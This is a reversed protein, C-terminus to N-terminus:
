KNIVMHTIKASGGHQCEPANEDYVVKIKKDSMLAALAIAFMNKSDETSDAPWWFGGATCVNDTIATRIVNAGDHSYVSTVEGSSTTWGAYSSASLFGLLTIGILKNM